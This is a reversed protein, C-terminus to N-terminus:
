LQGIKGSRTIQWSAPPLNTEKVGGIAENVLASSRLVTPIQQSIYTILLRGVRSFPYCRSVTAHM